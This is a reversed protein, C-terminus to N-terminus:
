ALLNSITGGVPNNMLWIAWLGLLIIVILRGLEDNSGAAVALIILGAFEVGLKLIAATAEQQTQTAKSSAGAPPNGPIIM